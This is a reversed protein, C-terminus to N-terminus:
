SSPLQADAFVEQFFARQEDSRFFSHGGEFSVLRSGPIAREIEEAGRYAATRDHRGHLILTPISILASKAVSDYDLAAAHQSVFAHWPQRFPPRFGPILRVIFSMRLPLSIHHEVIRRALVSVLILNRVRRPYRVSLDIAIRSGLSIGLVRANTVSLADLLGELDDTMQEISYRGRPKDTRGAGRNDFAIVRYHQALERIMWDYSTIDSGLGLILVFPEGEGHVEYYISLDRHSLYPM